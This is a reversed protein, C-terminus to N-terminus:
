STMEVPTLVITRFATSFDGVPFTYQEHVRSKIIRTRNNENREYLIERSGSSIVVTYTQNLFTMEVPTLTKGSRLPSIGWPFTM